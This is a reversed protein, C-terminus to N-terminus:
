SLVPIKLLILMKISIQSKKKKKYAQRNKIFCFDTVANKIKSLHKLSFSLELSELIFGENKEFVSTLYEEDLYVVANNLYSVSM